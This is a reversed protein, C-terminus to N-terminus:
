ESRLGATQTEDPTSEPAAITLDGAPRKGVPAKRIRIDGSLSRCRIEVAADAAGGEDEGPELESRVDGSTSALDLYVGLGPVVSVDIDGSTSALEIRGAAVAGVEIDGSTTHAAVSGSCYGVAVDGSASNIRADGDVLTAQVDGSATQVTLAGGARNLLVDGSASQVTVDGTVLAATIDGSATHTVLASLEGVCAVDASATKAACSSGAPAKITLDLGKNRRFSGLRPGRVYLQGDEFSVEVQSILDAIDNSRHSPLVEVTVESTPEGAVVISGSAWSDISIDVPDSCPFDWNTM